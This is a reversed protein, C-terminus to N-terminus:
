HYPSWRSRCGLNCEKGVRREESRTVNRPTDLISRDTGYVSNFPRATPVVTEELPIGEIVSKEMVTPTNTQAQGAFRVAISAACAAAIILQHNKMHLNTFHRCPRNRDRDFRAM